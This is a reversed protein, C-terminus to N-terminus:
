NIIKLFTYFLNGSQLSSAFLTSAALVVKKSRGKANSSYLELRYTYGPPLSHATFFPYENSSINGLLRNPNSSYVELYYLQDLGGSYGPLCEVTLTHVTINTISCNDPPDPPGLM